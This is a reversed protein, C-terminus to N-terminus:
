VLNNKIQFGGSFRPWNKRSQFWRQNKAVDSDVSNPNLFCLLVVLCKITTIDIHKCPFLVNQSSMRSVVENGPQTYMSLYVHGWKHSVM